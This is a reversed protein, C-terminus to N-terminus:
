FVEKGDKGDGKREKRREMVTPMTQSCPCALLNLQPGENGGELDGPVQNDILSLVLAERRCHTDTTSLKCSGKHGLEPPNSM